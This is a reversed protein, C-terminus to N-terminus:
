TSKNTLNGKRSFYNGKESASKTPDRKSSVSSMKKIELVKLVYNNKILENVTNTQNTSNLAFSKELDENGDEEHTFETLFTRREDFPLDLHIKDCL